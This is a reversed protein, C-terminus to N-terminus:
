IQFCSVRHVKSNSSVRVTLIVQLRRSSLHLLIISLLHSLRVLVLKFINGQSSIVSMGASGSLSFSILGLQIFIKSYLFKLEFPVPRSREALSSKSRGDIVSGFLCVNAEAIEMLSHMDNVTWWDNILNPYNVSLQFPEKTYAVTVALTSM